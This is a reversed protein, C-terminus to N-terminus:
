GRSGVQLKKLEELKEKIKAQNSKAQGIILDLLDQVDVSDQTVEFSDGTEMYEEEAGPELTVY